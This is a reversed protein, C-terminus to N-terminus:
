DGPRAIQRCKNWLIERIKNEHTKFIPEITQYLHTDVDNELYKEKLNKLEEFTDDSSKDDLIIWRDLYTSNAKYWEELWGKTQDNHTLSLGIIRM